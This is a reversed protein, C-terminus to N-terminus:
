GVVEQFYGYMRNEKGNRLNTFSKIHVLGADLIAKEYYGFQEMGALTVLFNSSPGAASNPNVLCNEADKILGHIGEVTNIHTEESTEGFFMDFGQYIDIACTGSGAYGYRRM